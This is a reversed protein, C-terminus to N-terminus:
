EEWSGYNWRTDDVFLTYNYQEALLAVRLFILFESAFGHSGAFRYLLTRSCTTVPPVSLPSLAHQPYSIVAALHAPFLASGLVLLSCASATIVALAAVIRRPFRSSLSAASAVSALSVSRSHSPLASYSAPAMARQTTNTILTWTCLRSISPFSLKSLANILLALHFSPQASVSQDSCPKCLLGGAIM